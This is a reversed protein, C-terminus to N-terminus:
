DVYKKFKLLVEKTLEQNKKLNEDIKLDEAPPNLGMNKDISAAEYKTKFRNTSLIYITFENMYGAIEDSFLTNMAKYKKTVDLAFETIGDEEVKSKKHSKYATNQYETANRVFDLIMAAEETSVRNAYGEKIKYDFNVKGSNCASLMLAVLVFTLFNLVLKRRKM